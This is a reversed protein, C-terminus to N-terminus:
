DREHEPVLRELRNLRELVDVLSMASGYKSHNLKNDHFYMGFRGQRLEYRPNEDEM